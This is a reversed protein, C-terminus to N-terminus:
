DNTLQTQLSDELEKAREENIGLSVSLRDILKRERPSIAGDEFSEKLADLYEQENSALQVGSTNDKVGDLNYEEERNECVGENQLRQLEKECLPIGLTAGKQLLTLAFDM